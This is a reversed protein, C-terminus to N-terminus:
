ENKLSRVPNMFAAKMAQVSITVLAIGIALLGAGAFVWWEASIRYAFGLLWRNTVYYALPTAMIIAVLVLKLFDKSLLATIGAASAGLVKRIGIEKTRQEAMFTALGFLGLCSILISLGTFLSILEGVKRESKYLKDFDADMFRYAFPLDPAISKWLQELEGILKQIEPANVKLTMGGTDSGYMLMLPKIPERLSSFNFDKVVGIVQYVTVAKTEEDEVRYLNRGIINERGLFGAAAENVIVALTDRASDGSFDRGEAMQMGMTAIYHEDVQWKHVSIADKMDLSPTSFFTDHIRYHNVPLFGSVTVHDVGATQRLKNKLPELRDGLQDIHDLILRQDRKFGLDRSAIYRMQNFVILTSAILVVSASFQFVVLANRFLASRRGAGLSGKLVAVPQFGSLYFAPYSGALLGVLVALGLLMAMVETTMLLGPNISQSTLQNFYPLLTLAAGVALATAMFCTIFSETIFQGILGSRQSGLAKRVGVERARKASRATALNMFNIVAIALIFLAIVSFMYLYDINGSPYLEGIPRAHLHIDTLKTLSVRFFDGQQNFESLTKNLISKLQPESYRDQMKNLEMTLAEAEVGPRVLLYTNYSQSGVWTNENAYVDEVMPVFSTFRFHSNPTIDKIVGTVKRIGTNNIVLTEGLVDVREFYKKAVSETIVISNPETLAKRPNGHLMPLRFVEFFTSDAQGVNGERINENGKRVLFGEYWRLRTVQEVEVLDTKATEGLLPSTVAMDLHNDGFKIEMNVRYIRDAKEHFRDYSLEYHVYLGMLLCATLGLALGGINIFSYGKDKLLARWGVKFYSKYMGYTNLKGHGERPRIIGPRFLLLVDIFFRADAVRKGNKKLRKEYVEM